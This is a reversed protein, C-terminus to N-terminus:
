FKLKPPLIFMGPQLLDRLPHIFTTPNQVIPPWTVKITPPRGMLFYIGLCTAMNALLVLCFFPILWGVWYWSIGVWHCVLVSSFM